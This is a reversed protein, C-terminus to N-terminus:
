HQQWQQGGDAGEQQRWTGVAAAMGPSNLSTREAAARPPHLAAAATHQQPRHRPCPAASAAGRTPGAAADQSAQARVLYSTTHTTFRRIGDIPMSSTHTTCLKILSSIDEETGIARPTQQKSGALTRDATGFPALPSHIVDIRDLCNMFQASPVACGHMLCARSVKKLQNSM